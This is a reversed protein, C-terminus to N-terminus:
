KEGNRIIWLLRLIECVFLFNCLMYCGLNTIVVKCGEEVKAIRLFFFIIEGCMPVSICLLRVFLLCACAIELIFCITESEM